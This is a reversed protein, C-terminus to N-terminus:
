VSRSVGIKVQMRLLRLSVSSVSPPQRWTSFFCPARGETERDFATNKPSSEGQHIKCGVDKTQGAIKVCVMGWLPNGVKVALDDTHYSYYWLGQSVQTLLSPTVYDTYIPWYPCVLCSASRLRVLCALCESNPKHTVSTADPMDMEGSLSAPKKLM